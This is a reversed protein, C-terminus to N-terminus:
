EVCERIKKIAENVIQRARERTIGYQGALRELTKRETDKLGFWAMLITRERETLITQMANTMAELMDLKECAEYPSEATEDAVLEMLTAGDNEENNISADGSLANSMIRDHENLRHWRPVHVDHNAQLAKMIENRIHHPAYDKLRGKSPEFLNIATALGVTGASVRDEYSLTTNDFDHAIKMVLKMNHTFLTEHAEANGNKMAEHLSKEEEANLVNCSDFKRVHNGFHDIIKEKKM